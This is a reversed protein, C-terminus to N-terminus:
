NPCNQGWGNKCIRTCRKLLAFCILVGKTAKKGVLAGGLKQKDPREVFFSSAPQWMM